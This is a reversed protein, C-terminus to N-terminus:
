KQQSTLSTRYSQMGLYYNVLADDYRKALLVAESSDIKHRAHARLAKRRDSEAGRRSKELLRRFLELQSPKAGDIWMNRLPVDYLPNVGNAIKATGAYDVTAVCQGEAPKVPACATACSSATSAGCCNCLSAAGAPASLAFLTTVAAALALKMM